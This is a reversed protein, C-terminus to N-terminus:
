GYRLPDVLVPKEKDKKSTQPPEPPHLGVCTGIRLLVAPFLRHFNELVIEGTEEARFM